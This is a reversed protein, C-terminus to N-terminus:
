RHAPAPAGPLPLTLAPPAERNETVRIVAEVTEVAAARITIHTDGFTVEPKAAAETGNVEASIM